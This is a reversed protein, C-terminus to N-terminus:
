SRRRRLTAGCPPMPYLTYPTPHRYGIHRWLAAPNCGGDYVISALEEPTAGLAEHETIVPCVHGLGQYRRSSMRFWRCRRHPISVGLPAWVRLPLFVVPGRWRRGADRRPGKGAALRAIAPRAATKISRPRWPKPSPGLDRLGLVMFGLAGASSAPNWPPSPGATPPRRWATSPRWCRRWRSRCTRSSSRRLSGRSAGHCPYPDEYTM